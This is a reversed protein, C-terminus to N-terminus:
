RDAREKAQRSELVYDNISILFKLEDFYINKSFIGFEERYSKISSFM